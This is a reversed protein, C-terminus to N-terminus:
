VDLRKQQHPAPLLHRGARFSAADLQGLEEALAFDARASANMPLRQIQVILRTNSLVTSSRLVTRYRRNPDDVVTATLGWTRARGSQWSLPCVASRTPFDPQHSFRGRAA